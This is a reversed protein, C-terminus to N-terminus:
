GNYQLNQNKKCSKLFDMLIIQKYPFPITNDDSFNHVQSKKLVVLLDNLFINSLIPGLVSGQQVGSLLTQFSSLISRIKVNQKQCKLYSYVFAAANLNLGYAHQKAVLLNVCFVTLAKSLDM